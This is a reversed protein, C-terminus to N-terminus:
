RPAKHWGNAIAESETCFWREGKTPDIRTAEYDEMGPLHYLKDGTSISINGKIVCEKNIVARMPSASGAPTTTTRIPPASRTPSLTTFLAIVALAGLSVVSKLLGQKRPAPKTQLPRDAVGQKRSAPKTQLSQDAVGQISAKTARVKGDAEAVREYFITDGVKPRRDARKLASIHLFVEKGGDEPKIFGFGKDDKWTTLQGKNLVPEM